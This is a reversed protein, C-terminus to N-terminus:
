ESVEKAVIYEIFGYYMDGKAIQPPIYESARVFEYGEQFAQELNKYEAKGRDYTRVVKYIKM